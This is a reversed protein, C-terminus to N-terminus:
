ADDVALLVDELQRLHTDCLLAHSSAQRRILKRKYKKCYRTHQFDSGLAPVRDEMRRRLALVDRYLLYFVLVQARAQDSLHEDVAVAQVAHQHRNHHGAVLAGLRPLPVVRALLCEAHLLQALVAVEVLRYQVVDGGDGLLCAQLHACPLRPPTM